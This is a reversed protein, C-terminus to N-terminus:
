VGFPSLDGVTSSGIIDMTKLHLPRDPFANRAQRLLSEIQRSSQQIPTATQGYNESIQGMPVGYTEAAMNFAQATKGTKGIVSMLGSTTGHQHYETVEKQAYDEYTQVGEGFTIVGRPRDKKALPLFKDLDSFGM